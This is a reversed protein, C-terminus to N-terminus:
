VSRSIAATGAVASVLAFVTALSGQDFAWALAVFFAAVFSIVILTRVSIM